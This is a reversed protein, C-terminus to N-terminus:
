AVSEMEGGAAGRRERFDRLARASLAVVGDEDLGVMRGLDHGNVRIASASMRDLGGDVNLLTSKGSGSPDNVSKAQGQPITLSVDDLATSERNSNYIKRLSQLEVLPSSPSTM